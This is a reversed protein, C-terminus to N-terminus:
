MVVVLNNEGNQDIIVGTTDKKENEVNGHSKKKQCGVDLTGFMPDTPWFQDVPPNMEARKISKSLLFTREM